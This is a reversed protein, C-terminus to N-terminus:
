LIKIIGFDFYLSHLKGEEDPAFNNVISLLKVESHCLAVTLISNYMLCRTYFMKITPLRTEWSWLNQKFDM